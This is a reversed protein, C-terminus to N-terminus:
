AIFCSYVTARLNLIELRSHSYYVNHSWEYMCIHWWICDYVHIHMMEHKRHIHHTTFCKHLSCKITRLILLLIQLTLLKHAHNGIYVYARWSCLPWYSMAISAYLWLRLRSLTVVNPVGPVPFLKKLSWESTTPMNKHHFITLHSIYIQIYM